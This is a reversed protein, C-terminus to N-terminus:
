IKKISEVNELDIFDEIGKYITSEASACYVKNDLIIAEGEVVDGKHFVKVMRGGNDWYEDNKFTIEVKSRKGVCKAGNVNDCMGCGMYNMLELNEM